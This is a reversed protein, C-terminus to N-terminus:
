KQCVPCLFTSRQHQVIRQIPAACRPCPAGKKGYVRLFNQFTGTKDDVKRYDSITTGNCALAQTLIEGTVRHIRQIEGRNLSNAPRTPAVRASFCIESVYINGLGAVRSQDMLWVKIPTRSKAAGQALWGPTFGGSLPEMGLRALPPAEEETRALFLRGLCRTDQYLLREGGSLLFVVRASPPISEAGGQLVFKGTMRLHAVLVGQPVLTFVLYKGRRAVRDVQKGALGAEFGQPSDGELLGPRRVQVKRITQGSLAQNLERAITEVEPLEPM